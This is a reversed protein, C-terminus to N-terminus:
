LVVSQFEAPSSGAGRRELLWFMHLDPLDLKHWCRVGDCSEFSLAAVNGLWDGHWVLSKGQIHDVSMCLSPAVHHMGLEISDEGAQLYCSTTVPGIAVITESRGALASDLDVVGDRDRLDALVVRVSSELEIRGIEGGPVIAVRNNLGCHVTMNDMVRLHYCSLVLTASVVLCVQGVDQQVVLIALNDQVVLRALSHEEEMVELDDDIVEVFVHILLHAGPFPKDLWCVM